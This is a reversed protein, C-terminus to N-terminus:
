NQDHNLKHKLIAYIDDISKERVDQYAVTELLGPIKTDDIRIPLIYERHKKFAKEQAAKRELNPWLKSAYHQSIFMVCYRGRKSYIDSLYEYLNKGWLNSEEYKDYFVSFNDARLLNALQDAHKRDEGAFSLVVDYEKTTGKPPLINMQKTMYDLMYEPPNVELIPNRLLNLITKMKQAISDKIGKPHEVQKIEKEYFNLEAISAAKLHKRSNVSISDEFDIQGHQAVKEERASIMKQVHSMDDEYKFKGLKLEEHKSKRTQLYGSIKKLGDQFIEYNEAYFRVGIKGKGENESFIDMLFPESTFPIVECAQLQILLRYKLMQILNLYYSTDPESCDNIDELLEEPIEVKCEVHNKSLKGFFVRKDFDPNKSVSIVRIDSDIEKLINEVITHNYSEM